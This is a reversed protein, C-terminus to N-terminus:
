LGPNNVPSIRLAAAILGTSMPIIAVEINTSVPYEHHILRVIFKYTVMIHATVIDYVQLNLIYYMNHKNHHWLKPTLLKAKRIGFTGRKGQFVVLMVLKGSSTLDYTHCDNHTRTYVDIYMYTDNRVTCPFSHIILQYLFHMICMSNFM